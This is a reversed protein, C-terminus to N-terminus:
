TFPFFQVVLPCRYSVSIYRPIQLPIFLMFNKKNKGMNEWENTNKYFDVAIWFGVMICRAVRLLGKKLTNIKRKKVSIKITL